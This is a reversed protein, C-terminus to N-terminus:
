KGIFIKSTIVNVLLEEFSFDSDKSKEIIKKIEKNDSFVIERGTGYALLDKIFGKAFKDRSSLLIFKLEHVTKYKFGNALTGGDEIAVMKNGIKEHTRWRGVADFNELGFGIPDMRSHCSSCVEQKQHHIVMDRNSLPTNLAEGLEPVNPPAPPPPNDLLKDLIIAGRIVPSSRVGNSGNVLFVAQGMFGGRYSEEEIPTVVYDNSFDGKLGYYHALHANVTVFRCDIFSQLPLSNQAICKFFEVVEQEASSKIGDNFLPYEEKAVSINRLRGFEAWQSMFGNYFSNAKQDFLMRSIQAKLVPIKFIEKSKALEYLEDDPPSAWLFYSLRNVFSHATLRRNSSSVVTEKLYLFKPSSLVIALTETMAEKYSLGRKKMNDKFFRDLTRIYIGDPVRRRFAEYTFRTIFEKSNKPDLLKGDDKALLEGFFNTQNTYIPGEIQCSDVHIAAGDNKEGIQELYKDFGDESYENFPSTERLTITNESKSYLPSTLSFEIFKADTKSKKVKKVFSHEENKFHIFHRHNSTGEVASAKIKFNYKARPDGQYNIKLHDLEKNRWDLLQGSTYLPNNKYSNNAKSNAKKEPEIKKTKAEKLPANSWKFADDIIKKAANYYGDVEKFSFYQDAGITDFEGIHSDFPIISDAIHIGFLSYITNKYERKNLRRLTYIGGNDALVEEAQHISTTLSTIAAILEDREPKEAKKPPMEGANLVHLVDQWADAVQNNNITWPVQDLRLDGKQKRDGHCEICYNEFFPELIHKELKIGGKSTQVIVDAKPTKEGDREARVKELQPKLLKIFDAKAQASPQAEDDPPMDNDEVAIVIDEWMELSGKDTLLISLKGFNLDGEIDNGTQGHCKICNEKIFGKIGHIPVMNQDVQALTFQTLILLSILTKIM